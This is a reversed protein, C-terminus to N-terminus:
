ENTQKIDKNYRKKIYDAKIKNIEKNQTYPDGTTHAVIAKAKQVWEKEILDVDHAAIHATATDTVPQTPQPVVPPTQTSVVSQNGGVTNSADLSPQEMFAANPATPAASTGAQIQPAPLEIPATKQEANDM